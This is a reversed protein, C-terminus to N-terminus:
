GEVEVRDTDVLLLCLRILCDVGESDVTENGFNNVFSRETSLDFSQAYM